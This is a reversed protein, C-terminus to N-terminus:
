DKIGFGNRLAFQILENHNDLNLIDLMRYKHSEITRSSLFLEDACQKATLGQALLTLVSCQKKSLLLLKEGENDTQQPDAQLSRSIITHQWYCLWTDSLLKLRTLDQHSLQADEGNFRSFTLAGWTQGFLQLSAVGHWRVGEVYLEKMVDLKHTKLTDGDFTQWPEKSKLLNLYEKYNGKIFRKKILEPIENRAVSITKGENLLIMSNPFLSLRDLKFWELAQTAVIKFTKNFEHPKSATLIHSQEVLLSEFNEFIKKPM